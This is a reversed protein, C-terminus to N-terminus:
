VHFVDAIFFPHHGSQLQEMINALTEEESRQTPMEADLAAEMIGSFPMHQQQSRHEMFFM